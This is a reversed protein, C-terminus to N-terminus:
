RKKATHEILDLIVKTADGIQSKEMAKIYQLRNEYLQNVKELLVKETAEEEQLVMSYGQKEFSRANLIQDGRSAQKSLPILLAPKRLALLEFLANAGARSICIDAAAMVSPLEESIFEFQKYGSLKELQQDMNGKGCIHVVQFRRLLDPLIARVLSNIKVSGLSGGIVLLVPKKSTFSCFALGEERSGKLLQSRVPTGTLIGKKEPLHRMTEPFTACIKTAFPLSIRNALGPTIDSEHLIVPIKNIWAGIVVPVSVFGGKSFVVDPKLRRLLMTAQLVGQLVLLPDTLNKLSFYRRLKGTSIKYYPINTKEVLEREIGNYSGIYAIDWNRRRLEPVLALNPTVHGASGGGTLVVKKM